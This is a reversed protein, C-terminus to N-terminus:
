RSKWDKKWVFCSEKDGIEIDECIEYKGCLSCKCDYIVAKYLDSRAVDRELETAEIKDRLWKTAYQCESFERKTKALERRLEQIELDKETMEYTGKM